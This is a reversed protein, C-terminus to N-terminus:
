GCWGGIRRAPTRRRPRERWRRRCFPATRASPPRLAGPRSRGGSRRSREAPLVVTPLTPLDPRTPPVPFCQPIPAGAPQWSNGASAGWGGGGGGPGCAPAPMEGSPERAMSAVAAMSRTRGRRPIFLPGIQPAPPPHPTPPPWGVARKPRVHPTRCSGRKAAQTGQLRFTCRLSCTQHTQNSCAQHTQQVPKDSAAGERAAPGGLCNATDTPISNEARM